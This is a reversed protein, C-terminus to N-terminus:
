AGGARLEDRYALASEYRHHGDAIFISEDRLAGTIAEIVHPEKLLWMQHGVGSDDDVAIDPPHMAAVARAPDLASKKDAYLGFIPSLNTRCVRLLRMRDEKARAFTREHPRIHGTDFPELRVRGIIGERQRATGDALVFKEL